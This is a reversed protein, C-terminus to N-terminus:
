AGRFTLRRLSVSKMDAMLKRQLAKYEPIRMQRTPRRSHLEKIWVDMGVDKNLKEQLQLADKVATKMIGEYDLNTSDSTGNRKLRERGVGLDEQCDDLFIVNYFGGDFVATIHAWEWEGHARWDALVLDGVKYDELSSKNETDLALTVPVPAKPIPELQGVDKLLALAEKSGVSDVFGQLWPRLDDTEYNGILDNMDKFRALRYGGGRSDTVRYTWQAKTGLYHHAVLAVERERAFADYDSCISELPTHPNGEIDHHELDQSKLRSLDIVAKVPGARRRVGCPDGKITGFYRKETGFKRWRLTLFDSGNFNEPVLSQVQAESSERSSFQIRAIPVCPTYAQVSEDPITLNNLFSIVSGPERISPVNPKYIKKKENRMRPNLMVFEDTDTVITWGRNKRKMEKLCEVNFSRQRLRHMQLRSKRALSTIDDPDLFHSENWYEIDMRDRWRDLVHHPSTRSNPDSTIILTRLNM